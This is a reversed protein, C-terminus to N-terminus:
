IVGLSGMQTKIFKKKAIAQLAMVAAVVRDRDSSATGPDQGHQKNYYCTYYSRLNQQAPQCVLGTTTLGVLLVWDRM